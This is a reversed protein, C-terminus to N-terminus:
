FTLWSAPNETGAQSSCWFGSMCQLSRFVQGHARSAKLALPIALSGTGCGIDAITVGDLSAEGLWNLVKSVTVAHGERIDLQVQPLGYM